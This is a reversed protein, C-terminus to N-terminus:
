HDASRDVIRAAWDDAWAALPAGMELLANADGTLAYGADTREVLGVERLEALRTNLTSAAVGGARDQLSRFSAPGEALAWLIGLTARRGLLDLLVMVPRGSTSGRVPRGPRPTADARGM